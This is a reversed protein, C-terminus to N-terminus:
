APTNGDPPLGAAAQEALLWHVVEAPPKVLYGHGPWRWWGSAARTGGDLFLTQGTIYSSLGSALFLVTNAFEDLTGMRGMPLGVSHALRAEPADEDAPFWGRAVAAPTSIMDPAITNVRIGSEALELALTRTLSEVAAKMAGYVAMSPAARHGETSTVTIISGGGRAIMSRAALRCCRAVQTFNLDVLREWNQESSDIFLRHRVGGPVNVLIDVGGFRDEVSRFFDEVAREDRVDLTVAFVKRGSEGLLEALRSVADADIDCAAVSVGAEALGLTAAIGLGGAGGTVIAVRGDLRARSDMSESM